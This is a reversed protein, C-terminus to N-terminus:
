PALSYALVPDASNLAPDPQPQAAVIKHSIAVATSVVALLGYWAMVTQDFYSIGFFAVVNAFLASSLAWLFLQPGRNGKVARRARGLYKFGYVITALFLVFPLLGSYEAVAVYQNCTDWM